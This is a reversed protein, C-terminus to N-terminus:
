NQYVSQRLATDQERDEGGEEEVHTDDGGKGSGQRVEGARTKTHARGAEGGGSGVRDLCDEAPTAAAAAAQSATGARKCPLNVADTKARYGSRSVRGLAPQIREGGSAAM